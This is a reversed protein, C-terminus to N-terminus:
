KGKEKREKSWTISKLSRPDGGKKEKQREKGGRGEKKGKDTLLISLPFFDTGHGGGGKGGGRGEWHEKEKGRRRGREGWV